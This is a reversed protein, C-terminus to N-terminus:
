TQAAFVFRGSAHGEAGARVEPNSKAMEQIMPNSQLTEKVESLM